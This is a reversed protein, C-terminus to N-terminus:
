VRRVTLATQWDAGLPQPQSDGCVLEFLPEIDDPLQIEARERIALWSRLLAYRQYVYESAGFSPPEDGQPADCL